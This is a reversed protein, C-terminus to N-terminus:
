GAVGEVEAVVETGQHVPHPQLVAEVRVVEHGVQVRQGPGGVGRDQAGAGGTRRRRVRPVAAWNMAPPTSGLREVTNQWLWMVSCASSPQTMFQRVPNPSALRM